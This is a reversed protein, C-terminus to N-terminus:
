ASWTLRGYGKSFVLTDRRGVVLAAGPYAGRRIGELVIPDFTAADFSAPRPPAVAPGNLASGAQLLLVLALVVSGSDAPRLLPLSRGGGGAAAQDRLRLARRAPRRLRPLLHAGLPGCARPPERRLRVQSGGAGRNRVGPRADRGVHQRPRDDQLGQPVCDSSCVDSSWDGQLRTHRRRSSFFFFCCSAVVEVSLVM